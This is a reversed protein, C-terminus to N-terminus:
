PFGRQTGSRAHRNSLCVTRGPDYSAVALSSTGGDGFAYSVDTALLGSEICFRRRYLLRDGPKQSASRFPLMHSCVRVRRTGDSSHTVSSCPTAQLMRLITRPGRPLVIPQLDAPCQSPRHARPYRERYKAVRHDHRDGTKLELDRLSGVTHHLGANHGCVDRSLSSGAV